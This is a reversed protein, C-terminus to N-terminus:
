TPLSKGHEESSILPLDSCPTFPLRETSLGPLINQHRSFCVPFSKTDEEVHSLYIALPTFPIENNILRPWTRFWCKTWITPFYTVLLKVVLIWPLNFIQRFKWGNEIKYVFINYNQKSLYHGKMRHQYAPQYQRGRQLCPPVGPFTHAKRIM